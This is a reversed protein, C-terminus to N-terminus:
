KMRFVGGDDNFACWLIRGTSSNIFLDGRGDIGPAGENGLAKWGSLTLRDALERLEDAAACGPLRFSGYVVGNAFEIVKVPEAGFPLAPLVGPWVPRASSFNEPTSIRFVVTSRASPGGVLLLRETWGGVPPLVVRATDGFTDVRGGRRAGALLEAWPLDYRAVELRMAVGNVTMSQEFLVLGGSRDGGFFGGTPRLLYVEGALQCTMLATVAISLLRLKM